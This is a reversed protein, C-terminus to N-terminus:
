WYARYFVLITNKEGIHSELAIQSGGASPLSFDPAKPWEPTPVPTETPTVTPIPLQTPTPKPDPTSDAGQNDSTTPNSRDEVPESDPIQETFQEKNNNKSQEASVSQKKVPKTVQTHAQNDKSSDSTEYQLKDSSESEPIGSVTANAEPSTTEGQNQNGDIKAPDIAAASVGLKPQTSETIVSNHSPTEVTTLDSANGCSITLSAFTLIAILLPYRSM